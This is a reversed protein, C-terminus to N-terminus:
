PVVFVPSMTTAQTFPYDIRVWDGDTFVQTGVRTAALLVYRHGPQIVGVPVDLATVATGGTLFVYVPRLALAGTTVSDVVELLQVAVRTDTTPPSRWSMTITQAQGPDFGLVPEDDAAGITGDLKALVVPPIAIGDFSGVAGFYDILDSLLTTREDHTYVNSNSVRLQLYPEWEAGLIAPAAYMVFTTSPDDAQSAGLLVSPQVARTGEPWARVAVPPGPDATRTSRTPLRARLSAVDTTGFPVDLDRTSTPTLAVDIVSVSAPTTEFDMTSSGAARLLRTAPATSTDVYELVLFRDGADSRATLLEGRLHAFGDWRRSVTTVGPGVPVETATAFVGTTMLVIRGTPRNGVGVQLQAGGDTLTPGARGFTLRGIRPAPWTGILETIPAGVGLQSRLRYPTDEDARCFRLAGDADLDVRTFEGGAISLDHTQDAPAISDPVLETVGAVTNQMRVPDITVTVEAMGTPCSSPRADVLDGGGGGDRNPDVGFVLQCGALGILLGAVGPARVGRPFRSWASSVTALM